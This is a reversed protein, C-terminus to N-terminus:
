CGIAIWKFPSTNEETGYNIRAKFTTATQETISFSRGSYNGHAIPIVVYSNETFMLGSVTCPNSSPKSPVYGWQIKLGNM